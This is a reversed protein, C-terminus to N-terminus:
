RRPRPRSLRTTAAFGALSGLAVSVVVSLGIAYLVFSVAFSVGVLLFAVLWWRGDGDGM